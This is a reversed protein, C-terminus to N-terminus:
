FGWFSSQAQRARLSGRMWGDDKSLGPWPNGEAVRARYHRWASFVNVTYAEALARDGRIVLFNEDNEGSASTSFNHSGTVVTAKASFPDAVLVKSHVIAYGIQGVFEKHTAEAAWWAIPHPRGEPQIVDLRHSEAKDGSLFTADVKSEDDPDPLESVVGRVYLGPEQQRRRVDKLVGKGGPMFMLFILGSEAGDIVERLAALDVQSRTRTFWVTADRRPQKPQSNSDLLSKPFESGAERLRRWQQLYEGAIAEDRILLGNNLQTCLGTPTWNTSGTWATKAKGKADTFVVFKNHGLHGPSIFRNTAEVDVAGALLRARATANEDHKRAEASPEGKRKQISGNALVVHARPGLAVLADILEPDSLEYLAAHVEGGRARTTALLELMEVRLDGSLFRRITHDDEDGITEKFESLSQGTRELYHAIFQSMVYGRNFYPRYRSSRKRGEAWESRLGDARKLEGNGGRLVPVVRYRASDGAELEHDTWSFGQFPWATSPRREGPKHKEKEFGVFNDLWKAHTKGDRTLERRVAFGICNPIEAEVNWVLLADDSNQLVKLEVAM